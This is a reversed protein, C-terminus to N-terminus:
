GAGSLPEFRIGPFTPSAYLRMKEISHRTADRASLRLM